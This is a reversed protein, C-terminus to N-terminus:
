ADTSSVAALVEVEGYAFRLEELGNLHLHLLVPQPRPLTVTASGIGTPSYLDIIATGADTTVQVRDGPHSGTATVPASIPTCAALVITSVGVFLSMVAAAVNTTTVLNM